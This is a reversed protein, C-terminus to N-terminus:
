QTEIKTLNQINLYTNLIHEMQREDQMIEDDFHILMVLIHKTDPTIATRLTDSTPNGFPSIEDEYLPLNEVNLVGRHIGEYDDEKTGIRILIDGQIADADVMCVSKMLLLSIYNGIDIADGLRYVEGYKLIRRLLAECAPRTHSPDKKLRKYGDRIHKIRPITVVDELKYKRRYTETLQQFLESISDSKEDIGKPILTFTYASISFHPLRERLANSITLKM